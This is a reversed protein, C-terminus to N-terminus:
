RRPPHPVGRRHAVLHHGEQRGRPRLDRAGAVQSAQLLHGRGGGVRPDAAQAGRQAGAGRVEAQAAQRGAGGPVRKGGPGGEDGAVFTSVIDYLHRLSSKCRVPPALRTQRDTTLGNPGHPSHADKESARSTGFTM